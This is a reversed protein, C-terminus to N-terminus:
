MLRRAWLRATLPSTLACILRTSFAAASPTGASSNRLSSFRAALFSSLAAALRTTWGLRAARLFDCSARRTWALVVAAVFPHHPNTPHPDRRGPRQQRAPPIRVRGAPGGREGWSKVGAGPATRRGTTCDGKGGGRANGAPHCAPTRGLVK